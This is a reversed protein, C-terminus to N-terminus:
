IAKKSQWMWEGVRVKESMKVSPATWCIRTLTFHFYFSKHQVGRGIQEFYYSEVNWSAQCISQFNFAKALYHRKSRPSHIVWMPQNIEFSRHCLACATQGVVRGYWVNTLTSPGNRKLFAGGNCYVNCHYPISKTITALGFHIIYSYANWWAPKSEFHM